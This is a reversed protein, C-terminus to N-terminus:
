VVATVQMSQGSGLMRLDATLVFNAVCKKAILMAQRDIGAVACNLHIIGPVITDGAHLTAASSLDRKGALLLFDIQRSQFRGSSDSVWRSRVIVEAFETEENFHHRLQHRLASSGSVRDVAGLNRQHPWVFFM